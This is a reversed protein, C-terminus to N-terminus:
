VLCVLEELEQSPVETRYEDDIFDGVVVGCQQLLVYFKDNHPSIYEHCLEHLLDTLIYAPERDVMEQERLCIVHEHPYMKSTALADDASHVSWWEEDLLRLRASKTTLDTKYEFYSRALTLLKNYDM